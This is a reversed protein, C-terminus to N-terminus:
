HMDSSDLLMQPDLGEKAGALVSHPLRDPDLDVHKHQDGNGFIM